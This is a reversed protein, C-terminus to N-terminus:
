GPTSAALTGDLSCTIWTMLHRPLLRDKSQTRGVTNMEVTAKTQETRELQVPRLTKEALWQRVSRCRKVGLWM